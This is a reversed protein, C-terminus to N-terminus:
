LTYVICICDRSCVTHRIFLPIVVTFGFSYRKQFHFREKLYERSAQHYIGSHTWLLSFSNLCAGMNFLRFSWSHKAWGHKLKASAGSTFQTSKHKWWADLNICHSLEVLSCTGVAVHTKDSGERVEWQLLEWLAPILWETGATEPCTRWECTRHLAMNCNRLSRRYSAQYLVISEQPYTSLFMTKHRLCFVFGIQKPQDGM